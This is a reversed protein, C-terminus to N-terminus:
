LCILQMVYQGSCNFQFCLLGDVEDMIVCIDVIIEVMVFEVQEIVDGFCVKGVVDFMLDVEIVLVGEVDFYVWYCCWNQLMFLGLMMGFVENEVGMCLIIVDINFVVVEEVGEEVLEGIIVSFMMLCDCWCIEFDVMVGIEIEVVQCMFFCDDCVWCGDFM